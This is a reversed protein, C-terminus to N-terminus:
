PVRGWISVYPSLLYLSGIFRRKNYVRSFIDIDDRKMATLFLFFVSAIAAKTESFELMHVVIYKPM